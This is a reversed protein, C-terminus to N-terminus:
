YLDDLSTKLYKIVSRHTSFLSILVGLLLIIICLWTLGQTIKISHLEPLWNEALGKVALIGLIAIVASIVGNLIARMDFPRAIFYRTAGVQQMTKILFRNSFMALRITNDILFIVAIILMISILLLVIGVKKIIDQLVDVIKQPYTVERVINSQQIFQAIKALSDKNMYNDHVKFNISTYLPNYDLVDMFNDGFEKQFQAAANEKSVFSTSKSFSQTEIVKKLEQAKSDQTNDNLIVSIELNERMMKSLMGANVILYGMFGLLFLVIAVGIISYVYQTNAKKNTKSINVKEVSM